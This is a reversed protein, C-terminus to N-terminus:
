FKKYLENYQDFLRGIMIEDDGEFYILHEKALEYGHKAIFQCFNKNLCYIQSSFCSACVTEPADYAFHLSRPHRFIEKRKIKKNKQWIAGSYTKYFERHFLIINKINKMFNTNYRVFYDFDFHELCYKILKYTRISAWESKEHCDMNITKPDHFPQTLKRNAQVEFINWSEIANLKRFLTSKRFKSNGSFCFLIKMPETWNPICNIKKM